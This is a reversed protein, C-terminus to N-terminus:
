LLLKREEKRKEDLTTDVDMVVEPRSMIIKVPDLEM